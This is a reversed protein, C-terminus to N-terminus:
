AQQIVGQSCRMCVGLLKSLLEEGKFVIGQEIKRKTELGRGHLVNYYLLRVQLSIPIFKGAAM